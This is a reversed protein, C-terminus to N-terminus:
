NFLTKVKRQTALATQSDGFVDSYMAIWREMGFAICSTNASVGSYSISFKDGFYNRHFNISAIAHGQFLFEQKVPNLKSLIAPSSTTDFFPDSAEVMNFPINLACLLMSIQDVGFDLHSQSDVENGVCVFEKMTFNRDRFADLPKDEQRFCRAECGIIKKEEIEINQMKLYVKYCAAPLLSFNIGQPRFSQDLIMEGNSLRKQDNESILCTICTLHPFNRIYGIQTMEEVSLISDFEYKSDTTKQLFIKDLLEGLETKVLCWGNEIEM